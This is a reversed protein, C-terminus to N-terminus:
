RAPPYIVGYVMVLCTMVARIWIDIHSQPKTSSWAAPSTANARGPCIPAAALCSAECSSPACLQAAPVGRQHLVARQRPLLVLRVVPERKLSSTLTPWAFRIRQSSKASSLSLAPIASSACATPSKATNSSTPSVVTPRHSTQCRPPRVIPGRSSGM